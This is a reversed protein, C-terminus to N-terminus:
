WEDGSVGIKEARRKATARKRGGKASLQKLLAARQVRSKKKATTRARVKRKARKPASQKKTQAAM